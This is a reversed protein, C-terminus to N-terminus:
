EKEANSVETRLQKLRRAIREIGTKPTAIGSKSKKQFAHVVYVADCMSVTYVARYAGSNHRTAIEM